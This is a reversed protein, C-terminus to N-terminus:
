LPSATSAPSVPICDGAPSASTSGCRSTGRPLGHTILDRSSAERVLSVPDKTARAAEGSEDETDTFIGYEDLPLDDRLIAGLIAM